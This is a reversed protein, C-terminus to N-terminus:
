YMAETGDPRKFDVKNIDEAHSDIVWINPAAETNKTKALLVGSDPTFSDFGVRDVVEVTYNNYWKEGRQMDAR